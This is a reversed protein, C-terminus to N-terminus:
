KSDEEECNYFCFISDGVKVWTSDDIEDNCNHCKM